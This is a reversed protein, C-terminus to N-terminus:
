AEPQHNALVEAFDSDLETYCADATAAFNYVDDPIPDGNALRATLLEAMIIAGGLYDCLVQERTSLYGMRGDNDAKNWISERVINAATALHTNPTPKM